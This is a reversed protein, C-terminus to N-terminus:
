KRIIKKKKSVPPKKNGVNDVVFEWSYLSVPLGTCSVLPGGVGSDYGPHDRKSRAIHSVTWTKGAWKTYQGYENLIRIKDGIRVM